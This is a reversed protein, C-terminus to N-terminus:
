GPGSIALLLPTPYFLFPCKLLPPNLPPQLHPLHTHTHTLPLPTPHIHTHTHASRRHTVKVCECFQSVSAKDAGLPQPYWGQGASTKGCGGNTCHSTLATVRMPWNNAKGTVQNAESRGKSVAATAQCVHGECVRKHTQAHLWVWTGWLM